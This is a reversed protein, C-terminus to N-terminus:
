MPIIIPNLFIKQIQNILVLNQNYFGKESHFPVLYFETQHWNLQFLTIVIWIQDQNLLNLFSKETHLFAISAGQSHNLFFHKKM